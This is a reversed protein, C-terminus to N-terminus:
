RLFFAWSKTMILKSVLSRSIQAMSILPTETLTLVKTYRYFFSVKIWYLRFGFCGTIPDARWTGSGFLKFVPEETEVFIVYLVVASHVASWHSSLSNTSKNETSLHQRLPCDSELPVIEMDKWDIGAWGHGNLRGKALDNKWTKEHIWLKIWSM